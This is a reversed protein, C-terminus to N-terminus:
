SSTTPYAGTCDMDSIFMQNLMDKGQLTRSFVIAIVGCALVCVDLFLWVLQLTRPMKHWLLATSYSQVLADLATQPLLSGRLLDSFASTTSRFSSCWQISDSLM